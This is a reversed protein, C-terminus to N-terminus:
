PAPRAAREHWPGAERAAILLGALVIAELSLAPMEWDWDLGAHIAWAALAVVPGAALTRDFAIARWACAAVGGLFALLLAFGVLGLEGLTEVYLSHADQAPEPRPRERLWEVRFGASGVGGVPHGAFARLAVPWYDYRNSQLSHLRKASATGGQEPNAPQREISASVAFAAAAAVGGLVALVQLRRGGLVNGSDETVARRSSWLDLLAALAMLVVLIALMAAGQGQADARAGKLSAVWDFRSAALSAVAAAPLTIAAARLQMRTPVLLLLLVLGAGLALFAGRSLTLYTAMGLMVAAASAAARTARSREVDGAMRTCLLFGIAALAGLANPYTLPQELRGVASLSRKLEFVGPLLRESLAWAMTAAIGAAIAPEAARAVARGRLLAASATLAAAYLLLRQGDESAPGRLPAWLLSLWTFAALGALGAVALRGATSAPLPQPGVLAAVLVLLCAVLGAVLRPGVFYGGTSFALVTPGVLLV